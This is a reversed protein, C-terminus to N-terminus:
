RTVWRVDLKRCGRYKCQLPECIPQNKQASDSDGLGTSSTWPRLGRSERDGDLTAAWLWLRSRSFLMGGETASPARNAMVTRQLVQSEHKWTKVVLGLSGSLSLRVVLKNQSEEMMATAFCPGLLRFVHTCTKLRSHEVSLRGLDQSDAGHFTSHKALVFSRSRTLTM